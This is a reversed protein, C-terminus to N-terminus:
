FMQDVCFVVKAQPIGIKLLREEIGSIFESIVSAVDSLTFAYQGEGHDCLYCIKDLDHDEDLVDFTDLIKQSFDNDDGSTNDIVIKFSPMFLITMMSGSTDINFEVDYNLNTNASTDFIQRVEDKAANVGQHKIFYYINDEIDHESYEWEYILHYHPTFVIHKYKNRTKFIEPSEGILDAHLTILFSGDSHVDEIMSIQESLDDKSRIEFPFPYLWTIHKFEGNETKKFFDYGIIGIKRDSLLQDIVEEKCHEIGYSGETQLYTRFKKM